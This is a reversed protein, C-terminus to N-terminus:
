PSLTLSARYEGDKVVSDPQYLSERPTADKGADQAPVVPQREGWPLPPGKRKPRRRTSEFSHATYISTM